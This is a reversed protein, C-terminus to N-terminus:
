FLRADEQAYAVRSTELFVDESRLSEELQGLRSLAVLFACSRAQCNFSKKPNFEIDTFSGFQDLGAVLDPLAVVSKLYLWDYFVTTPELPWRHGEFEFAVLHGSSQLRPDRRAELPPKLYLDLLPGDSRDFVKSGQFVSELAATRGDALLVPIEFASLSVGLEDPSKRSVELTPLASRLGRKSVASEFGNHLSAICKRKQNIAFGPHWVFDVDETRVRATNKSTDPLFVPRHAM